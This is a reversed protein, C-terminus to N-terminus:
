PGIKPTIEKHKHAKELSSRQRLRLNPFGKVPAAENILAFAPSSWAKLAAASGDENSDGAAAAAAVAAPAIGPERSSAHLAVLEKEIKKMVEQFVLHGLRYLLGASM